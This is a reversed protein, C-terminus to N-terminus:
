LVSHYYSWPIPLNSRYLTKYCQCRTKIEELVELAVNGIGRSHEFHNDHRVQLVGNDADVDPSAEVSLGELQVEDVQVGVGRPLHNQGGPRNWVQLM